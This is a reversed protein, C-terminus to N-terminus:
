SVAQLDCEMWKGPEVDAFGHPTYLTHADRTALLFRRLGRAAYRERIRRVLWSGLGRGRHERDVYVDCLYAFVADDTVVRAFAVQAGGPLYIGFVDSRALATRMADLPRGLAWYSDTALWRHVPTVDIRGSDDSLEYGNREDLV